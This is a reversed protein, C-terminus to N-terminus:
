HEGYAFYLVSAGFLLTFSADITTWLGGMTSLGDLATADTYDQVFKTAVLDRQVITMTVTTTNEPQSGDLIDSGSPTSTTTPPGSGPVSLLSHVEM